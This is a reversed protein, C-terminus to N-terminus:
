HVHLMLRAAHLVIDCLQMSYQCGTHERVSSIGVETIYKNAPQQTSMSPMWATASGPMVTSAEVASADSESCADFAPSTISYTLEAMFHCIELPLHELSM